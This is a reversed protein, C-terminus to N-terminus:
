TGDLSGVAAAGALGIVEGIVAKAVHKRGFNAASIQSGVDIGIAVTLKGLLGIAVASGDIIGIVNQTPYLRCGIRVPPLQGVGVVSFALEVTQRFGAASFNNGIHVSVVGNATQEVTLLQISFIGYQPGTLRIIGAILQCLLAPLYAAVAVRLIEGIIGRVAAQVSEGNGPVPCRQCREGHAIVAQLSQRGHVAADKGAAIGIPINGVALSGGLDFGYVIGM